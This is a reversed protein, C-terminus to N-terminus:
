MHTGLVKWWYYVGIAQFFMQARAM